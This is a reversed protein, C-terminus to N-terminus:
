FSGGFARCLKTIIERKKAPCVFVSSSRFIDFSEPLTSCRTRSRLFSDSSPCIHSPRVLTNIKSTRRLSRKERSLVRAARKECSFLLPNSMIRQEEALYVLGEDVRDIDSFRPRAAQHDHPTSLLEESPVVSIIGPPYLYDIIGRGDRVASV